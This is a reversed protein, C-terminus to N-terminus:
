STELPKIKFLAVIFFRTYTHLKRSNSIYNPPYMGQFPIALGLSLQMHMKHSASLFEEYLPREGQM